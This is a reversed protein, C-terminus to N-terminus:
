KGLCEAITRNKPAEPGDGRRHYTHCEVCDSRAGVRANHCRACTELKPMLVDETDKSVRAAHCETCDLMRHSEHSFRSQPLWRAHINTKEYEPLGGVRRGPEKELHCYACGGSRDLLVPHNHAEQENVFLLRESESLERKVWDWQPRSIAQPSRPQPRARAPTGEGGGLVLPNRRLFGLFRERLAARVSEVGQGPQPHPAPERAFAEAAKQADAGKITGAIQVWLPHCQSCHQDYRIPLMYRGAPDPRHCATCDLEVSKTKLRPPGPPNEQFEPPNERFTMGPRFTVPALLGGGEEKELHLKHNFRIKCPDKKGPALPSQGRWLAFEPHGDPFGKVNELPCAEGRRSNGRIDSHCALCQGDPLRALAVRGRHERHCAACRDSRKQEAHHPPGDHCRTCAEDPVARVSENAPWFRRATQFNETHCQACDNNFMAHATSVPGAQYLRSTRPLFVAAAALAVCVLLTLWTVRRRLWWLFRSRRFYDLEIWDPLNKPDRFASSM